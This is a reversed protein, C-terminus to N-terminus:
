NSIRRVRFDGPYPPNYIWAYGPAPIWSGERDSTVVNPYTSSVENVVWRVRFDGAVPPNVVWIYGDAPDV